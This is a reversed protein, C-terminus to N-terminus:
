AIQIPSKQYRCQDTKRLDRHNPGLQLRIKFEIRPGTGYFMVSEYYVTFNCIRYYAPATNSIDIVQTAKSSRMLKSRFEYMVFRYHKTTCARTMCYLLVGQSLTYFVASGWDLFHSCQSFPIAKRVNVEENPYSTKYFFTLLTQLQDLGTLTLLDVTSLRGRTYPNGAGSNAM